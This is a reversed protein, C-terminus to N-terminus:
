ESSRRGCGATSQPWKRSRIRTRTNRGPIRELQKQAKELTDIREMYGQHDWPLGERVQGPREGCWEMSHIKCEIGSADIEDRLEGLFSTDHTFVVVQRNKAEAVLRRAVLHRRWHDLSSVPDDFVVGGDHGALSLEAMFSAIAIARQEGESLVDPLKCATPLDLVLRHKVTGKDIRGDLKLKVNSVDLVAFEDELADRLAQTM